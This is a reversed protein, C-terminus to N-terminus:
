QNGEFINNLKVDTQLYKSIFKALEIIKNEDGDGDWNYYDVAYLAITISCTPDSHLGGSQEIEKLKPPLRMNTVLHLRIKQKTYISFENYVKKMSKHKLYSDILEIKLKKHINYKWRVHEAVMKQTIDKIEDNHSSSEKTQSSHKQINEKEIRNKADNEIDRIENRIKDANKTLSSSENTSRIITRSVGDVMEVEKIIDEIRLLRPILEDLEYKSINLERSLATIYVGPANKRIIILAESILQNIEELNNQNIKEVKNKTEKTETKDIKLIRNVPIGERKIVEDSISDLSLLKPIILDWKENSISLLKKIESELVGNPRKEIIALSESTLDGLEVYSNSDQDNSYIEDTKSENKKNISNSNRCKRCHSQRISKGGNIRMGFISEINEATPTIGCKPCPNKNLTEFNEDKSSKGGNKEKIPPSKSQTQEITKKIPKKIIEFNPTTSVVKEDKIIKASNKIPSGQTQKPITSGFTINGTTNKTNSKPKNQINQNKIYVTKQKNSKKKRLKFIIAFIIMLILILFVAGGVGSELDDEKQPTIIKTEIIKEEQINNQIIKEEIPKTQEIITNEKKETITPSTVVSEQKQIVKDLVLSSIIKDAVPKVKSYDGPLIEITTFIIKKDESILVSHIQTSQYIKNSDNPSQIRLQTVFYYNTGDDVKIIKREVVNLTGEVLRDSTIDTVLEELKKAIQNTALNGIVEDYNIEAIAGRNSNVKLIDAFIIMKKNESEDIIWNSPYSFTLGFEDSHFKKFTSSPTISSSPIYTPTKIEEFPHIKTVDFSIQNLIKTEFSAFVTYQGEQSTKTIPYLLEFYGNSASFIGHSDKTGDPLTIIIAVKRNETSSEGEGFIKVLIMDVGSTKIEYKPFEVALYSTQAFSENMSPPVIILFLGLLIIKFKFKNWRDSKETM